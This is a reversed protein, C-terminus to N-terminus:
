RSKQIPSSLRCAWKFVGGLVPFVRSEEEIIPVDLIRSDLGDITKSPLRALALDLDHANVLIYYRGDLEVLFMYDRVVMTRHVIIAEIKKGEKRALRKSERVGTFM